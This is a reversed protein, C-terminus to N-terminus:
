VLFTTKIKAALSAGLNQEKKKVSALQKQLDEIHKELKVVASKTSKFDNVM